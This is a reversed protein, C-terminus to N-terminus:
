RQDQKKKKASHQLSLFKGRGWVKKLRHEESSAFNGTRKNRRRNRSEKWQM